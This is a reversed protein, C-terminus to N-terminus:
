PPPPIGSTKTRSWSLTFVLWAPRPMEATLIGDMAEAFTRALALGLGVHQGGSRAAEKRWFREFLRPIDEAELDATTNAVSLRIWEADREIKVEVTGGQAAYDVANELLNGLISGLLAPDAEVELPSLDAVLTLGRDTARASLKDLQERVAKDLALATRQASIQRQEGRALTLMHAVMAEMQKAIALIERDTSQDRSEPWKIACEAQSRLEALPTRLEHAVDAAFRREREFSQQIRALLENLRGAIPLLERPLNSTEFRTALSGADVSAMREGLTDLPQLGRRLVRPILWLTASLVVAASASALAIWQWLTEDLETRDSAVVLQTEPGDTASAGAKSRFTFGIARGPRGNPLVMNWRVPKAQLGIAPPIDRGGLSESRALPNNAADWMEFFDRPHRDDFGRFFRDTFRVRVGGPAPETLTVVALAKAQLALDFQRVVAARAALFLALFGAGGLALAVVLVNRTLQRRISTM